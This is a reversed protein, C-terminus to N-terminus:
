RADSLIEYVAAYAAALRQAQVLAPIRPDGNLFSDITARLVDLADRLGDAATLGEFMTSCEQIVGSM